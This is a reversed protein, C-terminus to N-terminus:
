LLCKLHQFFIREKMINKSENEAFEMHEKTLKNKLIDRGIIVKDISQSVCLCCLIRKGRFIVFVNQTPHIEALHLGLYKAVTIM